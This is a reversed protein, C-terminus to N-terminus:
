GPRLSRFPSGSLGGNRSPGSNGSLGAARSRGAAGSLRTTGSESTTGSLRAAALSALRTAPSHSASSFSRTSWPQRGSATLQRGPAPGTSRSAVRATGDPSAPSTPASARKTRAPRRSTMRPEPPAPLLVSATRSISSRSAQRLGRSGTGTSTGADVSTGPSITFPQSSRVSASLYGGSRSVLAYPGPATPSRTAPCPTSGTISPSSSR